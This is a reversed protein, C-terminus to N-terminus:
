HKRAVEDKVTGDSNIQYEGEQEAVELWSKRSWATQDQPLAGNYLREFFQAKPNAAHAIAMVAPSAPAQGDQIFSGGPGHERYFLTIFHKLFLEGLLFAPGHPPPVDINWWAPSCLSSDASSHLMYQQPTFVIDWPIPEEEKSGGNVAVRFKVDPMGKLEKCNRKGLKDLITSLVSRPATLSSTGSDVVVRKIDGLEMSEEGILFEMLQMSWYHPEDVEVLHLNSAITDKLLGGIMFCSPRDSQRDMYFAFLPPIHQRMANDFVPLQHQASMSPFGCGLIGGFQGLAQFISGKEEYIMGFVQNKVEVPGFRISDKQSWGMIEGTGFRIHLYYSKFLDPYEGDRGVSLAAFGKGFEKKRYHFLDAQGASDTELLGAESPAIFEADTYFAEDREAREDAGRTLAGEASEEVFSHHKPSLPPLKNVYPRKTRELLAMKKEEREQEERNHAREQEIMASRDPKGSPNPVYNTPNSTESKGPDYKDKLGPCAGSDCHSSTLWVNTSGTDFVVQIPVPPTGVTIWGMFQSNAINRTTVVGLPDHKLMSFMSDNRRLDEPLGDSVIQYETGTEGEEKKKHKKEKKEKLEKQVFAHHHKQLEDHYADPVLNHTHHEFQELMSSHDAVFTPGHNVLPVVGIDHQEHEGYHAVKLHPLWHSVNGAHVHEVPIIHNEKTLKIADVQCFIWAFFFYM